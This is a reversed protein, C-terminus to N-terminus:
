VVNVFIWQPKPIYSITSKHPSENNTLKSTVSWQKAQIETHRKQSVLSMRNIQKNIRQKELKGKGHSHLEKIYSNFNIIWNQTIKDRLLIYAHQPESIREKNIAM